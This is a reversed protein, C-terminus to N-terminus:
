NLFDNYIEYASTEIDYRVEYMKNKSLGLEYNNELCVINM